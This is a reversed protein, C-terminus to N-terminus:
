ATALKLLSRRPCCSEQSGLIPARTHIDVHLLQQQERASVPQVDCDLSVALELIMDLPRRDEFDLAAPQVASPQRITAPISADVELM